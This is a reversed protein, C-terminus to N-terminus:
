YSEEYIEIIGFIIFDKDKNHLSKESHNLNKITKILQFFTEEPIGHPIYTCDWDTRPKNRCVAKVINVTQKSINM